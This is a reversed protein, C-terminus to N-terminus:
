NLITVGSPLLGASPIVVLQIDFDLFSKIMSSNNIASIDNVTQFTV